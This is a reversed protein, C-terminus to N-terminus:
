ALPPGCKAAIIATEAAEGIEHVRHAAAAEAAAVAGQADCHAQQSRTSQRELEETARRLEGHLARVQARADDISRATDLTQIAADTHPVQM